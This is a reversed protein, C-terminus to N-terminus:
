KTDNQVEKNEIRSSSLLHEKMWKISIRGYPSGMKEQGHAILWNDCIPEDLKLISKEITAESYGFGRGMKRLQNKYRLLKRRLYEVEEDALETEGFIDPFILERVTVADFLDYGEKDRAIAGDCYRLILKATNLVDERAL